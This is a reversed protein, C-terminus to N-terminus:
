KMRRVIHGSLGAQIVLSERNVTLFSVEVGLRRQRADRLVAHRGANRERFVGTRNLTIRSFRNATCSSIKLHVCSPRISVSTIRLAM